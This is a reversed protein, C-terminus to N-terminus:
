AGFTALVAALENGLSGWLLKRFNLLGVGALREGFREGLLRSRELFSQQFNRRPRGEPKRRHQQRRCGPPSQRRRIGTKQAIQNILENM